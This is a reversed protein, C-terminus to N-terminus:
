SLSLFAMKSGIERKSNLICWNAFLLAVFIISFIKVHFFKLYHEFITFSVFYESIYSSIILDILLKVLSHSFKDSHNKQNKTTITM